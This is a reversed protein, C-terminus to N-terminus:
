QLPGQPDGAIAYSVSRLDPSADTGAGGTAESRVALWATQGLRLGRYRAGAPLGATSLPVAPATVGSGPTASLLSAPLSSAAISLEVTCDVRRDFLLRVMAALGAYGDLPADNDAAAEAASQHRHPHTAGAQNFPDHPEPPDQPQWPPPLLNCLREYDVAPVCLRVGAMQNWVQTGLVADGGLTGQKGLGSWQASSLPRWDGVLQELQTDPMGLYQRLATLAATASRRPDALTATMGLWARRPLVIQAEADLSAMGAISALFDAQLTDQPLAYDLAVDQTAKLQHRLVNIRHNFVDLFAAFTQDDDRLRDRVWELFPEPLPGLESAVSYNPTRIEVVEGNEVSTLATTLAAGLTATSPANVAANVPENLLAHVAADPVHRLAARGGPTDLLDVADLRRCGTVEVGPFAPSLDATFRLRRAFGAFSRTDAEGSMLRWTLLVKLRKRVSPRSSDRVRLLRVLQFVDIREPRDFLLEEVSGAPPRRASAM